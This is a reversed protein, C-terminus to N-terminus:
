DVPKAATVVWDDDAFGKHVYTMRDIDVDAFSSFLAATEAESFFLLDMGREGDSPAAADVEDLRWTLPAVKRAHRARSDGDTRIVCCLKGGPALVRRMEAVSREANPLSMYYLVGFCLVADFAGDPYHSLDHGPAAHTRVALGAATAAQRVAELGTESIDCADVDFGEAALFLSHRGAGCGLDLVRAPPRRARDLSRFAWRVVKEHPYRPRFRPERHAQEWRAKMIGVGDGM